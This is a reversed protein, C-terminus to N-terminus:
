LTEEAVLGGIKIFDIGDDICKGLDVVGGECPIKNVKGDLDNRLAGRVRRLLLGNGEDNEIAAEEVTAVLSKRVKESRLRVGVCGFEVLNRREGRFQEPKRLLEDVDAAAVLADAAEELADVKIM